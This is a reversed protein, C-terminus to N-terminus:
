EFLGDCQLIRINIIQYLNPAHLPTMTDGVRWRLKFHTRTVWVVNTHRYAAEASADEPHHYVMRSVCWTRSRSVSEDEHRSLEYELKPDARVLMAFEDLLRRFYHPSRKQSARKYSCSQQWYAELNNWPRRPINSIYTEWAPTQFSPDTERWWPRIILSTTSRRRQDKTIIVITYLTVSEDIYKQCSTCHITPAWPTLKM